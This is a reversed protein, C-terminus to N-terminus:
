ANTLSHQFFLDDLTTWSAQPRSWESNVFEVETTVNHSQHRKTVPSTKHPSM